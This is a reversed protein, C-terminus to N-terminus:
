KRKLVHEILQYGVDFFIMNLFVYDSYILSHFIVYCDLFPRKKAIKAKVRNLKMIDARDSLYEDLFAFIMFLLFLIFDEFILYSGFILAVLVVGFYLFSDIKKTLILAVIIAVSLLLFRPQLYIIILFFTFMLFATIKSLKKRKKTVRIERDLIMDTYKVSIGFFFSIVFSLLLM